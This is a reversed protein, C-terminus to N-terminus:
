SWHRKKRNFIAAPGRLHATPSRVKKGTTPDIFPSVVQLLLLLLPIREEHRFGDIMTLLTAACCTEAPRM